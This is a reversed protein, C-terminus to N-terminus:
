EGIALGLDTIIPGSGQGLSSPDPVKGWSELDSITEEWESISNISIPEVLNCTMGIGAFSRPEFGSPTESDDTVEKMAAPRWKGEWVSM